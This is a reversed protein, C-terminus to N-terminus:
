EVNTWQYFVMDQALQTIRMADSVRVIEFGFFSKGISPGLHFFNRVIRKMASNNSKKMQEDKKINGTKTEQISTPRNTIQNQNRCIASKEDDPRTSWYGM